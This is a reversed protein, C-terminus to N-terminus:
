YKMWKVVIEFRGGSGILDIYKSWIPFPNAVAPSMRFITKYADAGDILQKQGINAIEIGTGPQSVNVEIGLIWCNMRVRPNTGTFDKETLHMEKVETTSTNGQWRKSENGYNIKGTLNRHGGYDLVEKIPSWLWKEETTLKSWTGFLLCHENIPRIATVVGGNTGNDNNLLTGVEMKTAQEKTVIIQEGNATALEMEEFPAFEMNKDAKSEIGSTFILNNLVIRRTVNRAPPDAICPIYQDYQDPNENILAKNAWSKCNNIELYRPCLRISGTVCDNLVIRNISGGNSPSSPTKLRNCIVTDVLKDFEIKEAYVNNVVITECESFWLWGTINCDTLILKRAPYAFNGEFTIGEFEAHDCYFVEDLSFVEAGDYAFYNETLPMKLGFGGDVKKEVEVWEFGRCARPYGGSFLDGSRILLREGDDFFAQKLKIGKDGALATEIQITSIYEKAGKYTDVNTQMMEGPFLGRQQAEDSGVYLSRLTTNYGKAKFSKAKHTWGTFSSLVLGSPIYVEDRQNSSALKKQLKKFGTANDTKGDGKIYYPSKTSDITM